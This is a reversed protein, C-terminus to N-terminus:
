RILRGDWLERLFRGAPLVRAMLDSAEQLLRDLPDSVEWTGVLLRVEVEAGKGSLGANQVMDALVQTLASRFDGSPEFPRVVGAARLGPPVAELVRGAVAAATPGLACLVLPSTRLARGDASWDCHLQVM